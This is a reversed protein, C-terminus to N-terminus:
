ESIPVTKFEDPSSWEDRRGIRGRRDMEEERSM